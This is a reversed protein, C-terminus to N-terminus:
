RNEGDGSREDTKKEAALFVLANVIAAAIASGGKRGTVRIQPVQTHALAEKAAEVAVFGVPVGIVLAPAAMKREIADVIALLATPANGIAFIGNPYMELLHTIGAATRTTGEGPYDLACLPASKGAQSLTRHIGVGVMRVDTIVPTNAQIARIGTAIAQNEFCFLHKLDFDATSHIARRVIAYEQPTFNHEGIERDIIAFSEAAIPHLQM